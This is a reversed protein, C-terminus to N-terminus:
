RSNVLVDAIMALFLGGIHVLSFYFLRLSHPRPRSKWLKWAMVLFCAGLSTSTGLFIWSGRFGECTLAIILTGTFMVLTYLFVQRTTEEVGKVVPLMPIGARAYDDKLHIALAWVHPPTWLFIIVFMWVPTWSFQDSLAAWAIPPGMAGPVGGIVINLYTRPKLILTYFFGYYLVMFVALVVAWISAHVFWLIALSGLLFAGGLGCATGVSMRGSPLPRKGRTRHMRGDRERELIQNLTNAGMGMSFLALLCWLVSSSVALRGAEVAIAAYGTLMAMVCIRAKGLVLIDRLLGTSAARRELEGCESITM